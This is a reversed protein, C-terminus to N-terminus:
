WGIDFGSIYAIDVAVPPRFQDNSQTIANHSSISEQSAGRWIWQASSTSLRGSGTIWRCCGGIGRRRHSETASIQHSQIFPFTRSLDGGKRNARGTNKWVSTDRNQERLRAIFIQRQFRLQAQFIIRAIAKAIDADNIALRSTSRFTSPRRKLFSMNCTLM